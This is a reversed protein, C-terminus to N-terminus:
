QLATQTATSVIRDLLALLNGVIHVLLEALGPLFLKVLVLTVVLLFITKMADGTLFRASPFASGNVLRIRSDRTLGPKGEFCLAYLRKQGRNWPSTNTLYPSKQTQRERATVTYQRESNTLRHYM